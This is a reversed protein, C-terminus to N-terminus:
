NFNFYSFDRSLTTTGTKKDFAVVKYLAHKGSIDDLYNTFIVSNQVIFKDELSENNKIVVYDDIFLKDGLLKINCQARIKSPIAPLKNEFLIICESLVKKVSNLIEKQHLYIKNTENYANILNPKKDILQKLLNPEWKAHIYSNIYNRFFITGVIIGIGQFISNNIVKSIGYVIGGVLLFINLTSTINYLFGKKEQIRQINSNTEKLEEEIEMVEQELNQYNENNLPVVYKFLMDGNMIYDSECIETIRIPHKGLWYYSKSYGTSNEYTFLKQEPNVIDGVSVNWYEIDTPDEFYKRAEVSIPTQMEEYPSKGIELLLQLYKKGLAEIIYIQTKLSETATEYFTKTNTPIPRKVVGEIESLTILKNEVEVISIFKNLQKQVYQENLFKILERYQKFIPDNFLEFVVGSHINIAHELLMKVEDSNKQNQMILIRAKQLYARAYNKAHEIASDAYIRAEEFDGLEAAAKSAIQYASSARINSNELLSIKAARQSLELSKKLYKKGGVSLYLKALWYNSLIDLPRTEIIKEFLKVAIAKEGLEIAMKAEKSPAVITTYDYSEEEKSMKSTSTEYSRLRDLNELKDIENEEGFIDDEDIDLNDFYFEDSFIIQGFYRDYITNLLQYTIKEALHEVEKECTPKPFFGITHRDELDKQWKSMVPNNSYCIQKNDYSDGICFVLISIDLENKYAEEYELHTYSKDYGSPTTGYEDGLLLIFFNSSKVHFLCEKLPPFSTVAGDDLNIVKLQPKRNSNINKTLANRLGAFEGFRSAIFIQDLQHAM